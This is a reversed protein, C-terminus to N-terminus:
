GSRRRRNLWPVGGVFLLPLVLGLPLCFSGGTDSADPPAVATSEGVAESSEVVITPTAVATVEAATPEPEPTADGAGGTQGFVMPTPSPPFTPLALPTPTPYADPSVGLWTIWDRQFQDYGVGLAQPFAEDTVFGAKYARLLNAMGAEGYQEVLYVIASVSTDYALRIREDSGGFGSELKTLLLLDGARAASRTRGVAGDSSNFENYQAVGENLWNPTPASGNDSVQYFYLHSIEHPVVDRLWAGTFFNSEVIQATIGLDSFAQGGVWERRVSQWEDFEEFDNYIIIFIPFSLAEGFLARQRAIAENAVDFVDEGFSAGRDHTWVSVQENEVVDWDFRTDHFRVLQEPSEAVNGASDTIRWKFLYPTAPVATGAGDLVYRMTTPSGPLIEAVATVRVDSALNRQTSYILDARVIDGATSVATTEFTLSTPFENVFETEGITIPSSQAAANSVVAATLALSLALGAILYIFTPVFRKM